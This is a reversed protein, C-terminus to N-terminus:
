KKFLAQVFKKKLDHLIELNKFDWGKKLIELKEKLAARQFTTTKPDIEIGKLAAAYRSARDPKPEPAAGSISAPASAVTEVLHLGESAKARYYKDLLADPDLGLLRGLIQILKPMPCPYELLADMKIRSLEEVTPRQTSPLLILVKGHYRHNEKMKQAVSPASVKGGRGATLVLDPNFILIQESLRAENVIGVIDFGIKM